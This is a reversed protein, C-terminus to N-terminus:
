KQLKPWNAYEFISRETQVNDCSGLGVFAKNSVNKFSGQFKRSVGEFCGQFKRSIVKLSELFVRSVKKFCGQFKRSVGKFPM